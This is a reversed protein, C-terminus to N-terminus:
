NDYKVSSWKDTRAKPTSHLGNERREWTILKQKWNLVPQGKSDIWHGATFYDYFANPDVPSNRETCYATVEELTPPVFGKKRKREKVSKNDTDIDTDINPLPTVNKGCGNSLNVSHFNCKQLISKGKETLSYWTTRDRPDKNFNSTEILGAEKLTDIAYRIKRESVYPFIEKLAKASNFTWYSGDRFNVENAENHQIWFYFHNLLVAEFIGYETAIDIDFHHQM